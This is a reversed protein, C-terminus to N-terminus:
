KTGGRFQSPRIATLINNRVSFASYSTQGVYPGTEITGGEYVTVTDGKRFALGLKTKVDKAIIAARPSTLGFARVAKEEMESNTASNM